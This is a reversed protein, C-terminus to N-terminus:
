EVGELARSAIYTATEWDGDRIRRLAAKLRAVEALADKLAQSAQM